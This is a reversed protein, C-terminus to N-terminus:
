ARWLPPHRTPPGHYACAWPKGPHPPYLSAQSCSHQWTTQCCTICSMSTPFQGEISLGPHFVLLPIRWQHWSPRSALPLLANNTGHVRIRHMFDDMPRPFEITSLVFMMATCLLPRNGKGPIQTRPQAHGGRKEAADHQLVRTFDHFNLSHGVLPLTNQLFSMYSHLLYLASHSPM